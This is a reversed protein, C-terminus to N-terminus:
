PCGGASVCATADSPPTTANKTLCLVDLRPPTPVVERKEVRIQHTGASLTGLSLGAPANTESKGEGDWHWVRFRGLHNGFKENSGGDVSALFSNADNSGPAGPYYFRGWLFWSGSSPLNVTYTVHDGSGGNSNTTSNAFVLPSSLNDLAPDLDAGGTFQTGTTM